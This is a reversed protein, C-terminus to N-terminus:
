TWQGVRLLAPLSGRYDSGVTITRLKPRMNIDGLSKFLLVVSGKPSQVGALEAAPEPPVMAGSGTSEGM